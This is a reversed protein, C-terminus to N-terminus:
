KEILALDQNDPRKDFRSPRKQGSKAPSYNILVPVQKAQRITENIASDFKTMWARDMQKKALNAGCQPCPFEKRVKGDNKDVAEEWFVLEHSCEPCVFVDSWVTYNIKGKTKGDTHLTEYMWGCEEEVEELIRKAEREFAVVDVPTNYNYAIFTASP